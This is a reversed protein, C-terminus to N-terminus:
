ALFGLRNRRVRADEHMVLVKDFYMDVPSRLLASSRFRKEYEELRRTDQWTRRSQEIAQLLETEPGQELWAAEFVGLPSDEAKELINNARKFAVSLHEFEEAYERRVKNLAKLRLWCDFPDDLPHITANLVAEVENPPFGRAGFVYRMRDLLFTELVNRVEGADNTLRNGYGGMATAALERLNPRRAVTDATWFDLLVRIAGQGARRLGFPDSSGSPALGIGFYGALTDLKDALSVAGFVTADAGALAHV